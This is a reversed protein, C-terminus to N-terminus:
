SNIEVAAYKYNIIYNHLTDCPIMKEAKWNDLSFRWSQCNESNNIYLYNNSVFIEDIFLGHPQITFYGKVDSTGLRAREISKKTLVDYEMLIAGPGGFYERMQVLWYIKEDHCCLELKLQGHREQLKCIENALADCQQMEKTKSNYYMCKEIICSNGSWYGECLIFDYKGTGWSIYQHNNKSSAITIIKNEELDIDAIYYEKNSERMYCYIHKGSEDIHLWDERHPKISESRFSIGGFRTYLPRPENELKHPFKEMSDLDIEIIEFDESVDQLFLLKHNRIGGLHGLGRGNIVAGFLCGDTSEEMKCLIEEEGTELDIRSLFNIPRMDEKSTNKLYYVYKGEQVVGNDKYFNRSYKGNIVVMKRPIVRDGEVLYIGQENVLITPPQKRREEEKEQEMRIREATEKEEREKQEEAEKEAREKQEKAEAIQRLLEEGAEGMITECVGKAFEESQRDLAEIRGAMDAEGRDRLWRVLQGSEAYVLISEIDFNEKLEELTHVKEGNGMELPFLIKKMAM